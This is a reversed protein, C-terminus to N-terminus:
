IGNHQTKIMPFEIIEHDVYGRLHGFRMITHIEESFDFKVYIAQPGLRYISIARQVMFIIQRYGIIHFILFFFFQLRSKAGMEKEGFLISM